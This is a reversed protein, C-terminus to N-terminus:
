ALLKGALYSAVAVPTHDMWFEEILAFDSLSAVIIHQNYTCAGSSMLYLSSAM